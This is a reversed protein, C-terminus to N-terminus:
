RKAFRNRLLWVGVALLLFLVSMSLQSRGRERPNMFPPVKMKGWRKHVWMTYVEGKQFPQTKERNKYFAFDSEEIVMKKGEYMFSFVPISQSEKKINDASGDKFGDVTVEVVAYDSSTDKTFYLTNISTRFLHAANFLLFLFLILLFTSKQSKKKM